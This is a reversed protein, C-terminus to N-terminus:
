SKPGAPKLGGISAMRSHIHCCHGSLCLWFLCLLQLLFFLHTLLRLRLRWASASASAPTLDRCYGYGFHKVANLSNPNRYHYYIINYTPNIRTYTCTNQRSVRDHRFSRANGLFFWKSHLM